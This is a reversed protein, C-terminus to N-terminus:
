NQRRRHNAPVTEAKASAENVEGGCYSRMELCWRGGEEEVEERGGSGAEKIANEGM